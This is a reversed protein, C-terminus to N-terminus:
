FIIKQHMIVLCLQQIYFQIVYTHARTPKTNGYLCASQRCTACAYAQAIQADLQLTTILTYNGPRSARLSIALVMYAM